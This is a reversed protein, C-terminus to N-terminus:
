CERRLGRCPEPGPRRHPPQVVMGPTRLRRATADAPAESTPERGPWDGEPRVDFADFSFDFRERLASRTIGFDGALDYIVQRHEGRPHKALFSQLEGRARDDLTLDARAYIREVMGLDDAM